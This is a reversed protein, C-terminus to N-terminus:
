FLKLIRYGYDYDSQGWTKACLLNGDSDFKLLFVNDEGEGGYIGITGTIYINGSSDLALGSVEENKYGGM